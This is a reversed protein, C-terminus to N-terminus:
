PTKKLTNYKDGFNKKAVCFIECLSIRRVDKRVGRCDDCVDLLMIDESIMVTECKAMHNQWIEERYKVNKLLQDNTMRNLDSAIVLLPHDNYITEADSLCSIYKQSFPPTQKGKEVTLSVNLIM